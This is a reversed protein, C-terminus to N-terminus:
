GSPLLEGPWPEALLEPDIDGAHRNPDLYTRPFLAALLPAGIAAAAPAWLRDIFCDEGDRLERESVIAGFDEPMVGGSHPSDLVFASPPAAPPVPGDIRIRDSTWDSSPLPGAPTM